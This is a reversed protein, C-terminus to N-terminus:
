NGWQRMAGSGWQRQRWLTLAIALGVSALRAINTVPEGVASAGHLARDSLTEVGSLYWWFNMFAHLGIAPWLSDWRYVIWAFLLGGVATVGVEGVAAVLSEFGSVHVNGLHALGFALASGLMARRATWGARSCLQRFLFGRFLVEEAFPGVLAIGAAAAVSAGAIGSVALAVLMPLTAAFGFSYGRVIGSGLGLVALVRRYGTHESARLVLVCPLVWLGIKLLADALHVDFRWAHTDVLRFAIYAALAVAFLAIAWQRRSSMVERGSGGVSVARQLVAQLQRAAAIPVPDEPAFLFVRGQGVSTEVIEVGKDLYQAGWAWGSRLPSPSAFWGVAHVGKAAADDGLKFVPDNDFFVDLTKGSGTARAPEHDDLAVALVAGPVYFKERPLPAGNEVLHNTVPLGFAQAAAM